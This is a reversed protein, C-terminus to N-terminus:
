NLISSPERLRKIIVLVNFQLGLVQVFGSLVSAISSEM